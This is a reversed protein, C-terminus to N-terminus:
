SGGSGKVLFVWKERLIRLFFQTKENSEFGNESWFSELLPIKEIAVMLSNTPKKLQPEGGVLEAVVHIRRFVLM